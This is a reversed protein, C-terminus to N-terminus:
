GNLYVNNESCIYLIKYKYKKLQIMKFSIIFALNLKVLKILIPKNNENKIISNEPIMKNIAGSPLM